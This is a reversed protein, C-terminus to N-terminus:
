PGGPKGGGDAARRRRYGRVALVALAVFVVMPTLVLLVSAVFYLFNMRPDDGHLLLAAFIM